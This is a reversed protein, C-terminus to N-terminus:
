RSPLPFNDAQNVKMVKSIRREGGWHWGLVYKNYKFRADSNNFSSISKTTAGYTTFHEFQLPEPEFVQSKLNNTM